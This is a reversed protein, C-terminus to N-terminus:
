RDATLVTVGMARYEDLIKEPVNWDTVLYDIEAIDCLKNLAVVNFKRYECALIKEAAISLMRKQIQAENVHYDTVGSELSIGGISLIAKDVRFGDLLESGLGGSTGLVDGRLKGGIVYVDSTPNEALIKAVDFSNTVVTLNKKEVLQEAIMYTTTGVNMAVSDGDKVLSAVKDAIAKKEIGDISIRLEFPVERSRLGSLLAGGRYRKIFGQQEFELLDRRITEASVDFHAALEEVRASRKEILYNLIQKKRVNQM